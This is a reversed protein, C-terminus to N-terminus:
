IYHDTIQDEYWGKELIVNCYYHNKNKNFVTKVLILVNHFTLKKEIPSFNYSVTRIRVFDHNVSDTIGSKENILYIITNYTADYLETGFSVLCRTGDYMKIIGDKKDFRFPLPKAGMFTKYSIDYIM